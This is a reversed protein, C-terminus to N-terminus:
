CGGTARARAATTGRSSRRGRDPDSTPYIVPVDENDDYRMGLWGMTTVEFSHPRGDTTHFVVQFKSGGRHKGPSTEAIGLYRAKGVAREYTAFCYLSWIGFGLGAVLLPIGLISGSWERATSHKSM